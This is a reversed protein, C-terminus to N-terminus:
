EESDGDEYTSIEVYDQWKKYPNKPNNEYPEMFLVLDDWTDFSQRTNGVPITYILNGKLKRKTAGKPAIYRHVTKGGVKQSASIDNYTKSYTLKEGKRTPVVVSKGKVRFKEAFEKAQARKPTHVVTAKGSLVDSFKKVQERMHRTPKQTRADVRKSVLGKAKLKAIDSRFARAQASTLKRNSM